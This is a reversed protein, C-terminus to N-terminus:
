FSFFIIYLGSFKQAAVIEDDLSVQSHWHWRHVLHSAATGRLSEGMGLTCAGVGDTGMRVPLVKSDEARLCCVM